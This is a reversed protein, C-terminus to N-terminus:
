TEIGGLGKTGGPNELVKSSFLMETFAAFLSTADSTVGKIKQKQLEVQNGRKLLNNQFRQFNTSQKKNSM